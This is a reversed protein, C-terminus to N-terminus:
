LSLSFPLSESFLVSAGLAPEISDALPSWTFQLIPPIHTYTHTHTDGVNCLASLCFALISHAPEAQQVLIKRHVFSDILPNHFVITALPASPAGFHLTCDGPSEFVYFVPPYRRNQLPSPGSTTQTTVSCLSPSLPLSPVHIFLSLSPYLSSFLSLFLSLSPSLPPSILSLSTCLSLSSSLSPSSSLSRSLTLSLYLSYSPFLLLLSISKKVTVSHHFTFSSTFSGPLPPPPPASSSSPPSHRTSNLSTSATTIDSSSISAYRSSSVQM